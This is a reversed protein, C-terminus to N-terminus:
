RAVILRSIAPTARAHSSGGMSRRSTAHSALRGHQV